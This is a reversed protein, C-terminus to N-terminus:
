YIVAAPIVEKAKDKFAAYARCSTMREHYKAILQWKTLKLSNPMTVPYDWCCGGNSGPEIGAVLFIVEYGCDRMLDAIAFAHKTPANDRPASQIVYLITGKAQM